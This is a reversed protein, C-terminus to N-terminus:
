SGAINCESECLTLLKFATVAQGSLIDRLLLTWKIIQRTPYSPWFLHSCIDSNVCWRSGFCEAWCEKYSVVKGYAVTCVNISCKCKFFEMFITRFCSRLPHFLKLERLAWFTFLITVTISCNTSLVVGCAKLGWLKEKLAPWSIAWTIHTSCQGFYLEMLDQCLLLSIAM